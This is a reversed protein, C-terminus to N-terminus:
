RPTGGNPEGLLIVRQVERGQILTFWPAKWNQSWFAVGEEFGPVRCSWAREVRGGGGGGAMSAVRQRRANRSSRSWAIAPAEESVL